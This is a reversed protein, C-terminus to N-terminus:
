PLVGAAACALPVIAATVTLDLIAIAQRPTSSFLQRVVNGPWIAAGAVSLLTACIWPATAPTASVSMAIVCMAAIAASLALAAALYPERHSRVRLAAAGAAAAGFAAAAAHRQTTLATLVVGTSMAAAAGSVVVTLRESITAASSFAVGLAVLRPAGVLAALACAALAPGAVAGPWWSVMAGVSAASAPLAAGALPLFIGPACNLVRWLVLAAAATASAALAFGSLVAADPTALWGTVGAFAVASVGLAPAGCGAPERRAVVVAAVAALLAAAASCVPYRAAHGDLLPRGLVAALGLVAWCLLGWRLVRRIRPAWPPVVEAAAAVAAALADCEDGPQAPVSLPATTLILVEGDRVDYQSLTRAPDLRPGCVRRIHFDRGTVHHGEILDVVAPLLDRIPLHASVDLDLDHDDTRISVRCVADTVTM